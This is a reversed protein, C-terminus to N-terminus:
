WSRGAGGGGFGGGGFGDFGGGGGGFGGGGFGGGWGFGGRRGGGRQAGLQYLLVLLVLLAVLVLLPVPAPAALPRSRAPPVGTLAVGNAQAVRGAVAAVGRWIGEDVHGARFDPLVETDLIEGILGDPLIGELGYGTVIRTKRDRIAILFVIGTDDRKRGPRWTDAVQMAYTFDDLPATTEVTLVAIEAGTKARLEECLAGIRAAVSASVIGADDTVWGRPAPIRPASALALGAGAILVAVLALASRM